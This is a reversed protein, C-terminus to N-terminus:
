NGAFTYEASVITGRWYPMDTGGPHWLVEAATPIQMGGHEAYAWFRGSWPTAEFSGDVERYRAPTSVRTIEGIRNFHFELSASASGDSLTARATSDNLATWEVGRSPLLATPLWVAEALFRQLAADSLEPRDALDAVGILGAVAARMSGVGNVYSDRVHVSIGPIMQIRANWLFGPPRASFTEEATFTRWSDDSEAMRFDGRQFLRATAIIPQGDTLVLSFYRQVPEPLTGLDDANFVEGETTTHDNLTAAVTASAAQWRRTGISIAAVSCLALTVVVIVIIKLLM